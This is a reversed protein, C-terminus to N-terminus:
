EVAEAQQKGQMTEIAKRYLDAYHDHILKTPIVLNGDFSNWVKHWPSNERHTISSLDIGGYNGYKKWVFNLVKLDNEELQDNMQPLLNEIRSSRYHKIQHYLEPIVPGYKWAEVEEFFMPKKLIALSWGNALYMLKLLKMPTLDRKGEENAKNIFFNAVSNLQYTM